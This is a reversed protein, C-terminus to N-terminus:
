LNSFVLSNSQKRCNNKRGLAYFSNWVKIDQIMLMINDPVPKSKKLMKISKKGNQEYYVEFCGLEQLRQVAHAYIVQSRSESLHHSGSASSNQMLYTKLQADDIVADLKKFQNFVFHYSEIHHAICRNLRKLSSIANEKVSIDQNEIEIWGRKKFWELTQDFSQKLNSPLFEISFIKLFIIWYYIFFYWFSINM